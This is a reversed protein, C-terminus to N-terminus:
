KSPSKYDQLNQPEQKYEDLHCECPCNNINCKNGHGLDICEKTEMIKIYFFYYKSTYNDYRMGSM